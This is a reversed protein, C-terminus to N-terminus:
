GARNARSKMGTWALANSEPGYGIMTSHRYGPTLAYWEELQITEDHFGPFEIPAAVPRGRIWMWQTKFWGVLRQWRSRPEAPGPGVLPDMDDLLPMMFSRSPPVRMITVGEPMTWRECISRCLALHADGRGKYNDHGEDWLFEFLLSANM